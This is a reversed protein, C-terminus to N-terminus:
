LLDDDVRSPYFQSALESNAFDYIFSATLWKNNDVEHQTLDHLLFDLICSVFVKIYFFVQQLHRYYQFSKLEFKVAPFFVQMSFKEDSLCKM